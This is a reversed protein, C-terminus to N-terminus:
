VSSDCDVPTTCGAGAGGRSGATCTGNICSGGICQAPVVCSIRGGGNDPTLGQTRPGSGCAILLSVCFVFPSRM